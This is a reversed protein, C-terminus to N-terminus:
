FGLVALAATLRSAEGGGGGDRWHLQSVSVPVDPSNSDLDYRRSTSYHLGYEHTVVYRRPGYKNSITEIPRKLVTRQAETLGAYLARIVRRAEIDTM